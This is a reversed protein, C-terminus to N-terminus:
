AGSALSAQMSSITSATVAYPGGLVQIGTTVGGGLGSPPTGATKLAAATYSGEGATPSVTLLLGAQNQSMLPAAALSDGWGTGANTGQAVYLTTQPWNLVAGEFAAIDAASQTYDQGAIRLVSIAQGNVQMAQISTVVANSLALQGGVAIVQTIGLSSLEAQASSGLATAPTLLVPIHYKYAIGAITDADQWDTNAVVIATKPSGTTVTASANGSTQNYASANSYAGALTPLSGVGGEGSSLYSAIMKATQDATQGYIAPEVTINQGTTTLGGCNYAPTNQLTTIEQPTVADPGGVVYVRTVGGVKLAQLTSPDIAGSSSPPTILVGTGLEGELYSASLADYPDAATALVVNGNNSCTATSGSTSVFAKEFEAAVTGEATQGYIAGSPTSGVLFATQSTVLYTAAGCPATSSAPTQYGVEVTVPGTATVTSAVNVHLGELTLTAPSNSGNSTLDFALQTGSVVNVTASNGATAGATTASVQATSAGNTQVVTPASTVTSWTAAPGGDITVCVNSGDAITSTTPLAISINGIAAGGTGASVTSVPTQPTVTVNSFTALTPLSFTSSGSSSAYTGSVVLNSNGVGSSEFILQGTLTTSAGAAATLVLVNQATGCAGNSLTTATWGSGALRTAGTPATYATGSTGFSISGGAACSAALQITDGAAISTTGSPLTVTLTTSATASASTNTGLFSPITESTSTLTASVIPTAAAAVGEGAIAAVGLATVGALLAGGVRRRM